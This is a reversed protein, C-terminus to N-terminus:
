KKNESKYRCAFERRYLGVEQQIDILTGDLKELCMKIVQETSFKTDGDDILKIGSSMKNLTNVLAEADGAPMGNRQLEESLNQPTQQKANTIKFRFYDPKELAEIEVKLPKLLDGYRVSDKFIAVFLRALEIFDKDTRQMTPFPPPLPYIELRHQAFINLLLTREKRFRELFQIQKANEHKLAHPEVARHAYSLCTRLFNDLTVDQDEDNLDLEGSNDLMCWLSILRSTNQIVEYFPVIALDNVLWEYQPIIRIQGLKNPQNEDPQAVQVDFLKDAAIVWRDSLADSIQKIEHGFARSTNKQGGRGTDLAVEVSRLQGYVSELWPKILHICYAPIKRNTYLNITGIDPKIHHAGKIEIGRALGFVYYFSFKQQLFDDEFCKIVEIGKKVSVALQSFGADELERCCAFIYEAFKDGHAETRSIEIGNSPNVIKPLGQFISVLVLSFAKSAASELSNYPEGETLSEQITLVNQQNVPQFPPFPYRPEGIKENKYKIFDDSNLAHAIDTLIHAPNNESNVCIHFIGQEINSCDRSISADKCEIEIAVLPEDRDKSSYFRKNLAFWKTFGFLELEDFKKEYLLYMWISLPFNFFRDDVNDHIGCGRKENIIAKYLDETSMNMVESSSLQTTTDLRGPNESAYRQYGPWLFFDRDGKASAYPEIVGIRSDEIDWINNLLGHLCSSLKECIETTLEKFNQDFELNKEEDELYKQITNRCDVRTKQLLASWEIFKDEM